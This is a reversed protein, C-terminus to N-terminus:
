HDAAGAPRSLDTRLVRLAHYIRSKATGVPIGLVAAAEAATRGHVYVLNLVARHEPSLGAVLWAFYDGSAVGDAHDGTVPETGASEAVEAPRCRRARVKDVVLNGAVRFLWARVRGSHLDLKELNRWARVLTEQVVDEALQRDALQRTAYALLAQGYEAYLSRILQEAAPRQETGARADAGGGVGAGLVAAPRVGAAPLDARRVGAAAAAGAPGAAAPGAAAPVGVGPVGAGPVAGPGVGAMPVGAGPDAGARVDAARVAAARDASLPTTAGM